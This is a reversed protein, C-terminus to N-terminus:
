SKLAQVVCDGGSSAYEDALAVIPGRPSNALYSAPEDYRSLVWGMIRRALKEAVLQWGDGGQADRLDVILGDRQFETHLDRHFDAWGQSWMGPIHLYGLRGGSADLVAARQRAVHDYYRIAYESPLPVVVLRRRIELPVRLTSDSRDVM